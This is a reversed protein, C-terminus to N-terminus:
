TEIINNVIGKKTREKWSKLSLFTLGKNGCTGSARKMKKRLRSETQTRSQIM